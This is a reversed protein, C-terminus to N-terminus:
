NATVVIRVRKVCNDSGKDIGDVKEVKYQNSIMYRRFTSFRVISDSGGSNHWQVMPVPSSCLQPAIIAQWDDSAKEGKMNDHLLNAIDMFREKFEAERAAKEAASSKKSLEDSKRKEDALRKQEAARRNAEKKPQPKYEAKLVKVPITDAGTIFDGAISVVIKYDGPNKFALKFDPGESKETGPQVQWKWGTVGPTTETFTVDDGAHIAGPVIVSPKVTEVKRPMRVIVEKVSSCKENVNITVHYTGATDFRHETSKGSSSKGDGFDWAINESANTCTFKVIQGTSPAAPELEVEPTECQDSLMFRMGIFAGILVIIAILTIFIRKDM